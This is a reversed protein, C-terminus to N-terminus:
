VKTCNLQVADMYFNLYTENWDENRARRIKRPKVLPVPDKRLAVMNWPVTSQDVDAESEPPIAFIVSKYIKFMEFTSDVDVDVIANTDKPDQGGL